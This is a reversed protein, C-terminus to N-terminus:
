RQLKKAMMEAIATSLPKGDLTLRFRELLERPLTINIRKAGSPLPKRGRNSKMNLTYRIQSPFAVRPTSPSIKTHITSPM